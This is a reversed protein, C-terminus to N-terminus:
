DEGPERNGFGRHRGETVCQGMNAAQTTLKLHMPNVCLTNNCLHSAVRDTRLQVGRFERLALRTVRQARPRGKVRVTMRAYPMRNGRSHVVSGLWVWCHSGGWSYDDHMVSNAIIRERLSAYKGM